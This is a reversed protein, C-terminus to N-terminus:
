SQLNYVPKTQWIVDDLIRNLYPNQGEFKIAIGSPETRILKGKLKLPTKHNPIMFVVQAGKGPELKQTTRIYVGSGSIDRIDSQIVRDGVVADIHTNIMRRQYRRKEGEQLSQLDMWIKKQQDYTLNQVGDIIEDLMRM